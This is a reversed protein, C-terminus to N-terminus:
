ITIYTKREIIMQDDSSIALIEVVRKERNRIRHRVEESLNQVEILGRPRVLQPISRIRILVCILDVVSSVRSRENLAV